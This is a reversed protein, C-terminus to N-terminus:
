PTSCACVGMPLPSIVRMEASPSATEIKVSASGGAASPPALAATAPAKSSRLVRACTGSMPPAAASPRLTSAPAISAAAAAPQTSATGHLAAPTASALRPACAGQVLLSDSAESASSEGATRTRSDCERLPQVVGAHILSSDLVPSLHRGDVSPAASPSTVPDSQLPNDRDVM